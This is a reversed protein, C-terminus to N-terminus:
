REAGAPAESEDAASAMVAGIEAAEDRTLRRVVYGCSVLVDDGLAVEPQMVRSVQLADTGCTVVVRDADVVATVRWPLTLCVLECGRFRDAATV